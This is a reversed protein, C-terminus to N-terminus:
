RLSTIVRASATRSSLGRCRPRLQTPRRGDPATRLCSLPLGLRLSTPSHRPSELLGVPGAQTSLPRTVSASARAGVSAGSEAALSRAFGLGAVAGLGVKLFDRRATEKGDGVPNRDNKKMAAKGKGPGANCIEGDIGGARRKM